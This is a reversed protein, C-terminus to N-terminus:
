EAPFVVSATNGTQTPSALSNMVRLIATADATALKQDNNVDGIIRDVGAAQGTVFSATATKFTGSQYYGVKVIYKYQGTQPVEVSNAKLGKNTPQVTQDAGSSFQDIGIVNDASVATEDSGAKYVLFTVQTNADPKVTDGLTLGTIDNSSVTYTGALTESGTGAVPYSAPDDAFAMTASAAVVASVIACSLFLKTFKKM